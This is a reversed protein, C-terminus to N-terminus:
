NNSSRKARRKARREQQRKRTEEIEKRRQALKEKEKMVKKAEKLKGNFLAGSSKDDDTLLKLARKAICIAIGTEVNFVDDKHTVSKEMTGDEFTLRVVCDNFTEVDVIKLPNSSQYYSFLEALLDREYM